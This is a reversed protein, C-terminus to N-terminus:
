TDRLARKLMGPLCARVGRGRGDTWSLYQGVGDVDDPVQGGPWGLEVEM